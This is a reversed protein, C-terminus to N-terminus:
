KRCVSCFIVDFRAKCVEIEDGDPKSSPMVLDVRAEDEYIDNQPDTLRLGICTGTGLGFGVTRIIRFSLQVMAVYILCCYCFLGFKM